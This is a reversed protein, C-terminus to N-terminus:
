EKDYVITPKPFLRKNGTIFISMNCNLPVTTVMFKMYLYAFLAGFISLNPTYINLIFHM